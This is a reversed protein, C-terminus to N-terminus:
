RVRRALILLPSPGEGSDFGTGFRWQRKGKKQRPTGLLNIRIM